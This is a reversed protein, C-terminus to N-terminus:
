PRRIRRRPRTAPDNMVFEGQATMGVCVVFHNYRIDSDVKYDVRVMTPKNKRVRDSLLSKLTEQDDSNRSYRLKSIPTQGCKGAVAWKVSDHVYGGESDLYEDLIGPTVNRGFFKLIM